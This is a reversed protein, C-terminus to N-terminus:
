AVEVLESKEVGMFCFIPECPTEVVLIMAEVFEGFDNKLVDLICIIHGKSAKLYRKM